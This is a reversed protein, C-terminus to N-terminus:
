RGIRDGFNVLVVGAAVLLAGAIRWANIDRLPMALWGFRDFLLSAAVQGAIILSLMAAVGIRPALLTTGFVFLAGLVGGLLMWWEAHVVRVLGNWKQGSLLAVLVLTLSGVLFSVLAALVTSGGILGKLQNNIAAQLPVVLGIALALLFYLPNM